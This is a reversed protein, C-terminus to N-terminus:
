MPSRKNTSRSFLQLSTEEVIQPNQQCEIKGSGAPGSQRASRGKPEVPEYQQYINTFSHVLPGAWPVQRILSGRTLDLVLVCRSCTQDPPRPPAHRPLLAPRPEAASSASRHTQRPFLQFEFGDLCWAFKVQM